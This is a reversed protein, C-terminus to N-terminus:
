SARRNVNSVESPSSIHNLPPLPAKGLQSGLIWPWHWAVAGAGTTPYAALAAPSLGPAAPPAALRAAAAAASAPGM